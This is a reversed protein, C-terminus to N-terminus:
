NLIQELENHYESLVALLEVEDGANLGNMGQELMEKDLTNWDYNISCCLDQLTDEDMKWKLKNELGEYSIDELLWKIGYAAKEIEQYIKSM